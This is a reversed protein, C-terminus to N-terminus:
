DGYLEELIQSGFKKMRWPVDSLISALEQEDTPDQRALAELLGRPMVIDSKVGMDRATYKRWQLLRDLRNLYAVSHKPYKPPYIPDARLGRKVARLINEGHRRVQKPSMGQIAGLEHLNGPLDSAIVLLTQTN